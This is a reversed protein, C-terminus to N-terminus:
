AAQEMIENRLEDVRKKVWRLSQGQQEAIERESLGFYIALAIRRSSNSLLQWDIEM